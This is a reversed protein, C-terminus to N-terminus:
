FSSNRPAPIEGGGRLLSTNRPPRKGIGAECFLDGRRPPQWADAGRLHLQFSRQLEAQLRFLQSVSVQAGGRKASRKRYFLAM